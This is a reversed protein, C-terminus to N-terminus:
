GPFCQIFRASVTKNAGRTYGSIAIKALAACSQDSYRQRYQQSPFRWADRRELLPVPRMCKNYCFDSLADYLTELVHDRFEADRDPFQILHHLAPLVFYRDDVLICPKHKIQALVGSKAENASFFGPPMGPRKFLHVNPRDLDEYPDARQRKGRKDGAPRHFPFICLGCM